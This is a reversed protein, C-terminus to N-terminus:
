DMLVLILVRTSIGNVVSQANDIILGNSCPNLRVKDRQQHFKQKDIILGNSCPNLSKM